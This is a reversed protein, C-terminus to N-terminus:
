NFEVFYTARVERELLQMHHRRLTLEGLQMNIETESPPSIRWRLWSAYGKKSAEAEAARSERGRGARSVSDGSAAAGDAATDPVLRGGCNCGDLSRWQRTVMAGAGGKPAAQGSLLRLLAEMMESCQTPHADLWRLSKGLHRQWLDFMDLAGFGLEVAGARQGVGRKRARPAHGPLGLEPELDYDHHVNIYVRSSLLTFLSRADLDAESVGAFLFAMHAAVACADRHANDRRLRAYWGQLVPLAHEHLKARLAEVGKELAARVEPDGTERDTRELGRVDSAAPSLAYNASAEVRLALRVAYLITESSGARVYRGADMDLANDLLAQLCGLLVAPSHTLEQFLLGAPTALHARSPAPIHEPMEKPTNPQWRGPEFLAADLVEQLQPNSLAATHSTQAFFRVLLPVRLYPALLYQLLLEADSARLMGGFDPLHRMHLVDEETAVTCGALGSADAASPPLRPKPTRGFLRAFFGLRKEAPAGDDDAAADLWGACHLTGGFGKVAFKEEKFRWSLRADEPAWAKLDPLADGSPVMMAKFFYVVDRITALEPYLDILAPNEGSLYAALDADEHPFGLQM